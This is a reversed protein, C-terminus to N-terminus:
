FVSFPFASPQGLRLPRQEGRPEPLRWQPPVPPSRQRSVLLVRSRKEVAEDYSRRGAVTQSRQNSLLPGQSVHLLQSVAPLGWAPGFCPM